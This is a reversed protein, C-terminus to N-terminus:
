NAEVAAMMGIYAAATTCLSGLIYALAMSAGFLINGGHYFMYLVGIILAMVLVFVILTINQRRLYAKAGDKIAGAIERMRDTGSDQELVYRYLYGALGVSILGAIPALHFLGM